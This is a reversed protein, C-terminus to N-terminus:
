SYTRGICPIDVVEVCEMFNNFDYMERKNRRVGNIGRREGDNIISNFDGL